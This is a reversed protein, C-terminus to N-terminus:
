VAHSDALRGFFEELQLFMDKFFPFVYGIADIVKPGWPEIISYTKSAEITPEKIIGMKTAYFLVVSYVLMNMIVYLVVGGVKNLWGLLVAEVAVELLNAIWRVLLIVGIMVIIFSLFPLWQASINTSDRLWGAVVVSLKLAAAIGFIIGLFSFIAVILGRSYGKWAALALLILTIIDIAM